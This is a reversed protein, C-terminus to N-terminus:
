SYYLGVPCGAATVSSGLSFSNSKLGWLYTVLKSSSVVEVVKIDKMDSQVFKEYFLPAIRSSVTMSIAGSKVSPVYLPNRIGIKIRFGKGKGSTDFTIPNKYVFSLVSGSVTCEYATVADIAACNTTTTCTM